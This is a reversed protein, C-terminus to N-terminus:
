QNIHINGGENNNWDEVRVGNLKLGSITIDFSYNYHRGREWTDAPLNAYVIQEGLTLSFSVEGEKFATPIVLFEIINETDTEPKFKCDKFIGDNYDYSPAIDGTLVNMRGYLSLAKSYNNYLRARTAYENFDSEKSKTITFTIRALAHNLTIHAKTNNLNIEESYGYLYDTNQEVTYVPITYEEIDKNYPYYAFVKVPDLTPIYQVPFIWNTEKFYTEMNYPQLITYEVENIPRLLYTGIATEPTFPEAEGNVWNITHVSEISLYSSTTFEVVNGKVESRGDTACLAVYYTTGAQLNGAESQCFWKGQEEDYRPYVDLKRADSLDAQTSLLFYCNARSTVSGSLYAMYGSYKEVADTVVTPVTNQPEEIEQCSQMSLCALLLILTYKFTKM